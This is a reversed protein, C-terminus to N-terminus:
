ICICLVMYIHRSIYVLLEESERIFSFIPSGSQSKQLRGMGLAHTSLVLIALRFIDTLRMEGRTWLHLNVGWDMCGVEKQLQPHQGWEPMLGKVCMGKSISLELGKKSLHPKYNKGSYIWSLPIGPM